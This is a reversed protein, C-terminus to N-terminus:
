GDRLTQQLIDFFREVETESNYIHPSLRMRGKRISVYAGYEALRSGIEPSTESPLQVGVMNISCFRKPTHSLGAEDACAIVHDTLGAIYRSVRGSGWRHLHDLAVQAMPLLVTNAREGVDHRRAGGRYLDCYDTLNGFDQSRERNLWAEELPEGGRRHPALYLYCLGYPGLLGKYGATVMADPQVASVDFDVTGISQTADLVLAAGVERCAGGVRILDIAAGTYWHVPPIAVVATDPGIHELVAATLDHDVPYVVSVIRAEQRKALSDWAYVNSPFQQALRIITQGSEVKLSRAAVAIGYSVSPVLAIGEADARILGAFGSRVQEAPAFFDDSTLEWPRGRQDLGARGAERMEHLMPSMFSCNLYTLSDPLDFCDRQCVLPEDQSEVTPQKQPEGVSAFPTSM